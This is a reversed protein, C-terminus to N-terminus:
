RGLVRSGLATFVGQSLVFIPVVAGDDLNVDTGENLLWHVGLGVGTGVVGGLLAGAVSRPSGTGRAAVQAGITAGAVGAVGSLGAKGIMCGLDEVGCETGLAVLGIGVLSGLSAGGAELVFDGPDDSGDRAPADDLSPARAVAPAIVAGRQTVGAPAIQQARAAPVVGVCCWLMSLLVSRRM